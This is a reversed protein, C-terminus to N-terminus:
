GNTGACHKTPYWSVERTAEGAQPLTWPPTLALTAGGSSSLVILVGHGAEYPGPYPIAIRQPTATVTFSPSFYKGVHLRVTGDPQGPAHAVAVWALPVPCRTTREKFQALFTESGSMTGLAGTIDQASVEALQNAAPAAAPIPATALSAASALWLWCGITSLVAIAGAPLLGPLGRESEARPGAAAAHQAGQEQAV